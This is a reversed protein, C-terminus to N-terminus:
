QAKRELLMLYGRQRQQDSSGNAEAKPVPEMIPQTKVVEYHEMRYREWWELVHRESNEQELWSMPDSVFIAYRPQVAEIERIMEDQMMRAFPQREMLPYAYIYGTASRRRAHFYIEPESGIVVIRTEPSTRERLFHGLREAEAFLDSGFIRRSAAQPGLGFWFSGNKVFSGVVGVALLVVTALAFVLALMLDRSDFDDGTPSRLGEAGEISKHDRILLLARSFVVGNLLALAPLVLVFYHHRLQLGTVLGFLGALLLGLLMPRAVVLRKEWWVLLAGVLGLGWFVVNEVVSVEGMYVLTDHLMTAPRSSAYVRAYSFTWLWFTKHVGLVFMILCTLAYPAALAVALWLLNQRAKVPRQRGAARFRWLAYGFAFMAFFLGHQKMVFALGCCLGAGLFDLTRGTIHARWLWWSGLLAWLVVFHTAHASLGLVGLSTSMLAYVGSAAVGAVKDILATGLLFVLLITALNVVAFGLHVGTTTQGFVAMMFAYCVYTGPLKMNYANQYPPVGQLLLQGAYAYEGEDRELPMERLRVRVILVLLLIVLMVVLAWHRRLFASPRTILAPLNTLM